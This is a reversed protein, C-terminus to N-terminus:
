SVKWSALTIEGHSRPDPLHSLRRLSVGGLKAGSDTDYGSGEVELACGSFELCFRLSACTFERVLVFEYAHLHWHFNFYVPREGCASWAVCRGLLRESSRM